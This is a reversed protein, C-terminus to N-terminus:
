CRRKTWVWIQRLLEPRCCYPAPFVARHRSVERFVSKAQPQRHVPEQKLDRYNRDQPTQTRNEEAGPGEAAGEKRGRISCCCFVAKEGEGWPLDRNRLSGRSEQYPSPPRQPKRRTM